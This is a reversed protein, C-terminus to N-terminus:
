EGQKITLTETGRRVRYTIGDKGKIGNAYNLMSIAKSGKVVRDNIQVIEDGVQLKCPKANAGRVVKSVTIKELTPNLKFGSTKTALGVSCKDPPPATEASASVPMLLCAIVILYKM